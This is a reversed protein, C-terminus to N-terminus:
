TIHLQNIQDLVRSVIDEIRYDSKVIYDIIGLKKAEAIKEPGGSVSVVIVPVDKLTESNKMQALVSLGDIGPLLIDM